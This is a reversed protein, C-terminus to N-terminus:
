IADSMRNPVNLFRKRNHTYTHPPWTGSFLKKKKTTFINAPSPPVGVAGGGGGCVCVCWVGVGVGRDRHASRSHLSMLEAYM